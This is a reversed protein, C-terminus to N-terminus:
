YYVSGACYGGGGYGSNGTDFFSVGGGAGGGGSGASIGDGGEAPAKDEGPPAPPSGPGGYTGESGHSEFTVDLPYPSGGGVPFAPPLTWTSITNPGGISSNYGPTGSRGPTPGCWTGGAGGGGGGGNAAPIAAGPNGGDPPNDCSINRGGDGGATGTPYSVAAGEGGLNGSGGTVYGGRGGGGGSVAFLDNYGTPPGLGLTPSDGGNQRAPWGTPPGHADGTGGAGGGPVRYTVEDVDTVDAVHGAVYAGGGGGGAGNDNGNAGGGGGGSIGFILLARYGSTDLTDEVYSVAAAPDGPQNVVRTWEGPNTYGSSTFTFSTAGGNMGIMTPLPKEKKHWPWGM